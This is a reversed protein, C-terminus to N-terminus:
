IFEFSSTLWSFLDSILEAAGLTRVQVVLSFAVSVGATLSNPTVGSSMLHFCDITSIMCGGPSSYDM